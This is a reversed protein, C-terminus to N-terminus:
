LPEHGVRPKRLVIANSPELVFMCFASFLLCSVRARGSIHRSFNSIIGAASKLLNPM